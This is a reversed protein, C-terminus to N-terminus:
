KDSLLFKLDELQRRADSIEDANRNLRERNEHESRAKDDALMRVRNEMAFIEDNVGRYDRDQNRLDYLRQRLEAILQDKESSRIKVGSAQTYHFKTLGDDKFRGNM